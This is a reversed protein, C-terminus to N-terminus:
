ARLAVPEFRSSRKWRFFKRILCLTKLRPHKKVTTIDSVESSGTQVVQSWLRPNSADAWKQRGVLTRVIEKFVWMTVVIENSIQHGLHTPETSTIKHYWKHAAPLADLSVPIRAFEM